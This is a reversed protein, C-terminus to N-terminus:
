FLERFGSLIQKALEIRQKTEGSEIWSSLRNEWEKIVKLRWRKQALYDQYEMENIQM